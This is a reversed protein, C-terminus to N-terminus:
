SGAPIPTSHLLRLGYLGQRAASVAVADALLMGERGPAGPLELLDPLDLTDSPHVIAGDPASILAVDGKLFIRIVMAKQGKRGNREARTSPAETGGGEDLYGYFVMKCMAHW